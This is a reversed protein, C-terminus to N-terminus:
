SIKLQKSKNGTEEETIEAKGNVHPHSSVLNNAKKKRSGESLVVSETSEGYQGATVAHKREIRRQFINNNKNRRGVLELVPM